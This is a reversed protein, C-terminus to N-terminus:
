DGMDVSYYVRWVHDAYLCSSGSHNSYILICDYHDAITIGSNLWGLNTYGNKDLLERCENYSSLSFLTAVLAHDILPLLNTM